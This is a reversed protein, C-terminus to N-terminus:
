ENICRKGKKVFSLTKGKFSALGFVGKNPAATGFAGKPTTLCCVLRERQLQQALRVRVPRQVAFWVCRLAKTTSATLGCAGKITNANTIIDITAYPPPPIPM